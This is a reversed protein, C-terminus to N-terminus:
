NGDKKSRELSEKCISYRMCFECNEHDDPGMPDDYEDGFYGCDPYLKM